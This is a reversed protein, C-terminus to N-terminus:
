QIIEKENNDPDSPLGGDAALYLPELKEWLLNLAVMKTQDGGHDPHLATAAARYAAKAASYPLLRAFKSFDDDGSVYVYQSCRQKLRQAYRQQKARSEARKQATTRAGPIPQGLNHARDTLFDAILARVTRPKFGRRICEQEFTGSGPGASLRGYTDRIELFKEGLEYRRSGPRQLWVVDSWLQEIQAASEVLCM